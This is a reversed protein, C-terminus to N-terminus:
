HAIHIEVTHKPDGTTEYEFNWGGHSDSTVKPEGFEDPRPNDPDECYKVLKEAALVKADAIPIDRRTWFVYGFVVALAVLILFKWNM